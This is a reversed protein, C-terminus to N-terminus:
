PLLALRGSRHTVLGDRLSLRSTARAAIAEDHTILLVTTGAANLESILDMIRSATASDLSGTPEDCLLLAPEGMLARAIAVRQREGGSLTAPLAGMRHRMGTRSLADAAASRRAARNRSVYVQGLEVNEMATRYPILHFSQFVFGIKQGRLAARRGESLPETDTGSLRYSGATPRDLLGLLNLLTSKGSGSPGVVAVFDGALVTMDLPGLARVPPSAHFTRMLGQVEIVPTPLPGKTEASKATVPQERGTM